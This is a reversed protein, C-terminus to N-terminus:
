LGETKGSAEQKKSYITAYKRHMRGWEALLEKPLASHRTSGTNHIGAALRAVEMLSVNYRQAIEEFSMHQERILREVDYRTIM